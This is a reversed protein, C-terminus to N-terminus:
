ELRRRPIGKVRYGAGSGQNIRTPSEEDPTAGEESHCVTDGAGGVPAEFEGRKRDTELLCSIETNGPIM